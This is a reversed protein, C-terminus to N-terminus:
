TTGFRQASCTSVGGRAGLLPLRPGAARRQGRGWGQRLQSGESVFGHGYWCMEMLIGRMARVGPFSRQPPVPSVGTGPEGRETGLHWRRATGWAMGGQSGPSAGRCSCCRGASARGTGPLAIPPDGRGQATGEAGQGDTSAGRQGGPGGPCGAWPVAGAGGAVPSTGLGTGTGPSKCCGCNERGHWHGLTACPPM